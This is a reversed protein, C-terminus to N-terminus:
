RKICVFGDLDVISRPPNGFVRVDCGLDSDARSRVMVAEVGSEDLRRALDDFLRKNGKGVFVNAAPELLFRRCYGRLSARPSSIKLVIFM